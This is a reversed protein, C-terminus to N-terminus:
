NNAAKIVVFNIVLADGLGTTNVNSVTIDFSGAAVATVSILYSGPNAGSSALCAVVVDSAAVTSNTVTFKAEGGAALSAANMTIKGSIKNITVGNTKNTLQTQQGGAGTSYGIGASPSSSTVAGTVSLSSGSAAGINPTTLQPSTQFVLSGSGSEDSIVGALESSTTPSFFSLKSNNTAYSGSNTFYYNTGDYGSLSVSSRGSPITMTASSTYNLFSNSPLTVAISAGSTNNFRFLLIDGTRQNSFALTRGGTTSFTIDAQGGASVDFTWAGAAPTLAQSGYSRKYDPTNLLGRATVSATPLNFQHTSVSSSINFDSGSTGTAFNQSSGTLGNLFYLTAHTDSYSSIDLTDGGIIYLSDNLKNVAKRFETRGNGKNYLFGKINRTTNELNFEANCSDNTILVSDAKIKNVYQASAICIFLCSLLLCFYQKSKLSSSVNIKFGM